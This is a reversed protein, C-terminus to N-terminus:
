RGTIRTSGVPDRLTVQASNTFAPGVPALMIHRQLFQPVEDVPEAILELHGVRESVPTGVDSRATPQQDVQLAATM